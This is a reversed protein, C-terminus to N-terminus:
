RFLQSLHAVPMSQSISHSSAAFVGLFLVFIVLWIAIFAGIVGILIFATMKAYHSYRAADALQGKKNADDCLYSFLVALLGIPFFLVAVVISLVWRPDALQTPASPNPSQNSM